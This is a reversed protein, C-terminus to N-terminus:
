WSPQMTPSVAMREASPLIAADRSGDGRDMSPDYSSMMRESLTLSFPIPNPGPPSAPSIRPFPMPKRTAGSFSARSV